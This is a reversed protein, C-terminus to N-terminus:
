FYILFFIKARSQLKWFRNFNHELTGGNHLYSTLSQSFCGKKKPKEMKRWSFLVLDCSKLLNLFTLSLAVVMTGHSFLYASGIGINQSLVTAMGQFCHAVNDGVM